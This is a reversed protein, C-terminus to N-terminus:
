ADLEAKHRLYWAIEEICIKVSPCPPTHPCSDIREDVKRPGVMERLERARALEDATFTESADFPHEPSNEATM